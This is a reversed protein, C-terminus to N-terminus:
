HPACYLAHGAEDSSNYWMVIRPYLFIYFSRAVRLRYFQLIIFARSIDGHTKYDIFVRTRFHLTGKLSLRM